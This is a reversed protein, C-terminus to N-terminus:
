KLFFFNIKNKNKQVFNFFFDDIDLLFQIKNGM